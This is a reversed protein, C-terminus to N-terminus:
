KNDTHYPCTTLHDDIIGVAQLFSYITVPGVFTFGRKKLDKSIKTSLEDKAPIDSSDMRHNIIRNHDTFQWIYNSLSGFEEQIKQAALANTRVAKIKQPHRVVEGAERIAELEAETLVACRDIDFQHFARRYGERKHLITRWSLGAQAGELNLMEFLHSDDYGPRGWETNHYHTMEPDSQAWPCISNTTM